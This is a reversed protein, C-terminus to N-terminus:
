FAEHRVLDQFNERKRIVRFRGDRVLIEPPRPRSNYNSAMSFGYAGTSLIAVLDGRKLSASMPRDSAFCDSSECVPGVISYKLKPGKLYAQSVPIIAHFSGYLAPRILDNMAADLILFNKNGHKKQGLVRAILVGSNGAIVRGPEIALKFNKNKKKLPGFHKQILKAYQSIRPPKENSYTIGVGGGLDVLEIKRGMKEIETILNKVEVFADQIPGLSLLQSGIHVSIGQLKLNKYKQAASFIKLVQKREMGFKNKKLGTSIYPHTKANIDPNFRLAIRAVKKNEQAVRNILELEELSEVNFSGVGSKGSKLASKIEEETKGVGSFIIKESPIAAKMARFLEGGSVIDAGAGNQKLLKLIHINSNAKVAFCILPEFSRLEKKLIKLTKLFSKESYVYLPTGSTKAIKDLPIGDACLIGKKYSFFETPSSM